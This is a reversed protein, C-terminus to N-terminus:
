EWENENTKDSAAIWQWENYNKIERQRENDSTTGNTIVRQWEIYWEDTKEYVITNIPHTILLQWNFATILLFM